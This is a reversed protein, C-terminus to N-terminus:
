YRFAALLGFRGCDGKEARHSFFLDTRCSTCYDLFEINGPPVGAGEIQLTIWKRLHLMPRGAKSQEVVSGLWRRPVHEVVEEGVEYCCSGIGPGIGIQINHVASGANVMEAITHVAIEAATGRWGSHVTAVFGAAPDWLLIPPCDAATVLLGVGPTKTILADTEKIVNKRDLAHAGTEGVTSKEVWKEVWVIRSGHVQGAFHSLAPDIQLNDFFERRGALPDGYQDGASFSINKERSSIGHVLRPDGALREFQYIKM